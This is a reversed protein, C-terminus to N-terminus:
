GVFPPAHDGESSAAALSHVFLRGARMKERETEVWVELMGECPLPLPACQVTQSYIAKQATEKMHFPDPLELAPSEMRAFEVGDPLTITTTMSSPADDPDAILWIIACFKPLVAPLTQTTYLDTIYTGMFSMKNGVEM